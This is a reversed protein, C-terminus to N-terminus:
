HYYNNITIFMYLWPYVTTLLIECPIMHIHVKNLYMGM